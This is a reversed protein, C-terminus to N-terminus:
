NGGAAVADIVKIDRLWAKASVEAYVNSRASVEFSVTATRGAFRALDVEAQEIWEPEAYDLGVASAEDVVIGDVLVTFAAKTFMNVAANLDLRRAYSLRPSDGLTMRCSVTRVRNGVESGAGSVAHGFLLPGGGAPGGEGALAEWGRGEWGSGSPGQPPQAAADAAVRTQSEASSRAGKLLGAAEFSTALIGPIDIGLPAGSPRGRRVGREGKLLGAAEFSKAIIDQVDIGGFPAAHAASDAQPGAGERRSTGQFSRTLIAQLDLTPPPASQPTAAPENTEAHLPADEGAGAGATATSAAAVPVPDARPKAPQPAPDASPKASPRRTPRRTAPDADTLGWFRAIHSASPVGMDPFFPAANGCAEPGGASVAQGHAMGPVTVAEVLDHGEANRWLRRPCGDIMTEVTPVARLGHVNTWQKIIEEANVPKVTGDADGHWVSVKPWAGRHPSANRVLDGWEEAPRSKGQFITEFAEQLGNASRYPVGAVIAGGAFVDPHTALVVSTMAGGASLGTVYVKSPDIGQDAIMRDVMQRISLPEGGDREIDESRFWNFCRLPNNSRRQEPLLLAFGYRDALATWGAGYDYSAATQTCGHLVVVLPAPDAMTEPLYTQMRLNGPNSGFNTVEVLRSSRADLKEAAARAARATALFSEWRGSNRGDRTLKAIHSLAPGLDLMPPSREDDPSTLDGIQLIKGIPLFVTHFLGPDATGGRSPDLWSPPRGGEPLEFRQTVIGRRGAKGAVFQVAAVPFGRSIWIGFVTMALATRAPGDRAQDLLRIVAEGFSPRDALLRLDPQDGPRHHTGLATGPAGLTVRPAADETASGACHLERYCRIAEVTYSQQPAAMAAILLDAAYRSTAPPSGPGRPGPPVLGDSVLLTVRFRLDRRSLGLIDALRESFEYRRLPKAM